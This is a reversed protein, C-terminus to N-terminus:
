CPYSELSVALGRDFFPRQNVYGCNTTEHPYKGFISPDTNIREFLWDLDIRHIRPVYRLKHTRGKIIMKIVADNDELLVLKANGLPKPLTAPVYDVTKLLDYIGNHKLKREPLSGSPLKYM